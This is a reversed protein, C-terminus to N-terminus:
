LLKSQIILLKGDKVEIQATNEVIENSIGIPFDQTVTANLLPYKVGNLTVGKSVNSYTFVSLSFCERANVTIKGNVLLSVIEKDSVLRGECGSGAILDLVQINAFTHDLRNGTAGYIDIKKFGKKIALKVAYYTDTDDKEEPLKLVEDVDCPLEDLSDFDGVLINVKLGLEKAHRYGSDACIILSECFSEPKVFSYDAIEGGSFIACSSYNLYKM